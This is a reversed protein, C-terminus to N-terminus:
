IIQDYKNNSGDTVWELIRPQLIGHIFFGPLGTWLTAFLRVCSFCSLLCADMQYNSYSNVKLSERNKVNTLPFQIKFHYIFIIEM